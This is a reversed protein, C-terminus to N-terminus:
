FAAQTRVAVANFTQGIQAGVPTGYAAANPSLRDITVHDLDLMVRFVPNFYWNVGVAWIRQEGGRIASVSPATGPAGAHFNLDAESYRLALEVAGYTGDKLSFPHAPAPGDFAATSANYVRREGTVAWSGEVYWGSFTPSAIGDSRAV